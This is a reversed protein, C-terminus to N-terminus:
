RYARKDGECDNEDDGAADYEKIAYILERIQAIGYWLAVPLLPALWEGGIEFSGRIDYVNIIIRPVILLEYLLSASLYLIRATRLRKM